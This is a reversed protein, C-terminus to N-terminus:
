QQIYNIMMKYPNLPRDNKDTPRRVAFPNRKSPIYDFSDELILEVLWYLEAEGCTAKITNILDNCAKTYAKQDLEEEDMEEGDINWNDEKIKSINIDAMRHINETIAECMKDYRYSKVSEVGMENEKRNHNHLSTNIGGVIGVMAKRKPFLLVKKRIIANKKM